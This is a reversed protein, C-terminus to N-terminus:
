ISSNGPKESQKDGQEPIMKLFQLYEFKTKIENCYSGVSSKFGDLTGYRIIVNVGKVLKLKAEEKKDSHVWVVIRQYVKAKEPNDIKKKPNQSIGEMIIFLGNEYERQDLIQNIYIHGSVTLM